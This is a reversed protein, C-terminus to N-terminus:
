SRRKQCQSFLCLNGQKGLHTLKELLKYYKLAQKCGDVCADFNFHERAQNIEGVCKDGHLRAMLAELDNVMKKDNAGAYHMRAKTQTIQNVWGDLAGITKNDLHNTASLFCIHLNAVLFAAIM